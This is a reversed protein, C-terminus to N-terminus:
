YHFVWGVVVLQLVWAAAGFALLAVAAAPVRLRFARHGEFVAAVFALGAIPLTFWAVEYFNGVFALFAVKRRCARDAAQSDGSQAHPEALGQEVSLMRLDESPCAMSASHWPGHRNGGAEWEARSPLAEAARAIAFGVFPVLLVGACWAGLTWRIWADRRGHGGTSAM